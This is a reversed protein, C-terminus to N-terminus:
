RRTASFPGAADLGLPPHFPDRGGVIQIEELSRIAVLQRVCSVIERLRTKDTAFLQYQIAIAKKITDMPELRSILDHFDLDFVATLSAIFRAGTLRSFQQQLQLGRCL